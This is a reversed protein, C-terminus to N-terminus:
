KALPGITWHYDMNEFAEKEIPLNFYDESGGAVANYTDRFKEWFELSSVFGEAQKAHTLEHWLCLSAAEPSLGRALLIRHIPGGDCCYCGVGDLWRKDVPQVEVEKTLGLFAAAKKVAKPKLKWRLENSRWCETTWEDLTPCWKDRLSM